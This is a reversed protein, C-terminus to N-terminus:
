GGEGTGTWRAGRLRTQLALVSIGSAARSRLALGGAPVASAGAELDVERLRGEHALNAFSFTVSITVITLTLTVGDKVGDHGPKDRGDV